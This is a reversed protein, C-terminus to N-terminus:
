KTYIYNYYKMNINFLNGEVKQSVAKFELCATQKQGDTICWRRKLVCYEPFRRGMEASLRM